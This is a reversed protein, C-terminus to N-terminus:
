TKLLGESGLQKYRAVWRQVVVNATGIIRLSLRTSM